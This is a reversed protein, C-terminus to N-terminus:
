CMDGVQMCLTKLTPKLDLVYLDNHDILRSTSNDHEPMLAKQEETFFLPPGYYPSTGGFLVIRSGDSSAMCMAQRRRRNPGGGGPRVRRWTWRPTPELLWLDNYHRDRRGNYGGFILMCDGVSVASHSRRGDPVQFSSPSSSATADPCQQEWAQM